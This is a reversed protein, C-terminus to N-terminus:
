VNHNNHTITNKNQIMRISDYHYSGSHANDMTYNSSNPITIKTPPYSRMLDFSKWYYDTIIQKWVKTQTQNNLKNLRVKSLYITTPLTPSWIQQFHTFFEQSPLPEKFISVRNSNSAGIFATYLSPKLKSM